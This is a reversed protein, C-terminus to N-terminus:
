EAEPQLLSKLAAEDIVAVGMEQAKTLKTGAEDGAVVFTTKKSVSSSVKGGAAEIADQAQDRTMSPFTGTLVFVKGALHAGQGSTAESARSSAPAPELNFGADLLKNIADINAPTGFYSVLSRATIEGIDPVGMFDDFTASMIAKMSGFHKALGKGTNEGCFRIGLGYLVKALPTKKSASIADVLAAASKPGMREFSALQQATLSFLDAYTSVTGSDVLQDILKDGLGDIYVARRQAFHSIAGARQDRCAMGGLCRYDAQGRERVVSSGCTPCTAPMKFNSVYAARAGESRGVIEPIVDGARRVIATDGVRIGKRRVDFINSLTANTVTVGGVFVPSLRAVPTLKGTRGVQIDIAEVLTPMEQAPFKHAVAWRPERSLFGLQRQLELSNVKYVVGDIDYPLLDRLGGIKAHWQVLGDAGKIVEFGCAIAECQGTKFGLKGILELTEAQTTVPANVTGSEQDAQRWESVGYAFFSLPRRRCESPDLNQLAGSAANRPNALTKKNEAALRENIAHFADRRMYVEGRVEVVHPVNVGPASLSLPVDKITRINHTVDSGEQGEGRTLGTVLQGDVYRLVVALGDYKAEACYSVEEGGAMGLADRVRADFARAGEATIDTETRLSLMANTHKVKSLWPVAAGLVRKTPSSPCALEPYAEELAQLRRFMADYEHDSISPASLVYYNHAHREIRAALDSMEHSPSLPTSTM